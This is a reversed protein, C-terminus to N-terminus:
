IAKYKVDLLRDEDTTSTGPGGAGMFGVFGIQLINMHFINYM